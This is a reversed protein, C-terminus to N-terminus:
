TTEDEDESDDGVEDESDDGILVLIATAFKKAAITTLKSEITQGNDTIHSISITNNESDNFGVTLSSM